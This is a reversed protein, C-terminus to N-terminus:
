RMARALLEAGSFGLTQIAMRYSSPAAPGDLHILNRKRRGRYYRAAEPLSYKAITRAMEFCARGAMQRHEETWFGRGEMWERLNDILETKTRVVLRPDKRCVTDESWIRYVAHPTPAFVFRLHAQLARLYLEHEQCCPQGDKWGGIANLAARRWLAGGTQPIEWSLWQNFIDRGTHIPSRTRAGAEEIWVPSYIIDV